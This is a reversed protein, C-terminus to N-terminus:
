EVKGAREQYKRSYRMVLKFVETVAEEFSPDSLMDIRSKIVQNERTADLIPLGNMEKYEGVKRSLEMRRELLRVIKEDTDDIEERLRKLDTM